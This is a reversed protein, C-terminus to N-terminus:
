AVLKLMRATKAGYGPIVEEIIRRAAVDDNARCARSLESFAYELTAPPLPSCRAGLIGDVPGPRHLEESDFLEEYLKEGPRLGTYTIAVDRDPVLGAMRIMQRALDAIRVPDGMDLVLITGRDSEDLAGHASAHLILSVAEPITMFYRKIEPHTVTLPGGRELQKQFLPVVSGSSGLVNGFRVTMFRPAPLESPADAALDLSQCYFEALRKSAGMVNTPNVAKDTSIQVFARVGFAHAADAVNRTGIVNTLLGECPNLEVMPVHKLAAAHFVLEPRQQAFADFVRDRNRVDCLVARRPVEPFAEGIEQDIAYLNFESHELLAIEAPSRAAIQRVLESGISGGAGTVLVRRDTVFGDIAAHDLRAPARGLLDELAIPRLEVDDDATAARLRSPEPMRCLEIDLAEAQDLLTQMEGRPLRETVVLRAPRRHEAAMDAVIKSLASIRGLVPVGCIRLGCNGAAAPAVVGVVDIDDGGTLRILRSAGDGAGVALVPMRGTTGGGAAGSPQNEPYSLTRFAFRSGALTLVLLCWQIILTSGNAIHLRQTVIAVVALAGVSCSVTKIVDILDASSTFRWMGRHLGFYMSSLLFLLLFIISVTLLSQNQVAVVPDSGLQLYLAAFLSFAAVFSDHLIAAANRPIAAIARASLSIEMRM